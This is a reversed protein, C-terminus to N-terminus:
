ARARLNRLRPHGGENEYRAGATDSPVPMADHAKEFVRLVLRNRDIQRTVVLVGAERGIGVVDELPDPRAVDDEDRLRETPKVAGSTQACTGTRMSTNTLAIIRNGALRSPLPPCCRISRLGPDRGCLVTAVPVSKSRAM